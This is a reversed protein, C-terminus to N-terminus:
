CVLESQVARPRVKEDVVGEEIEIVRGAVLAEGGDDDAILALERVVELNLYRVVSEFSTAGVLPGLPESNRYRHLARGKRISLPFALNM